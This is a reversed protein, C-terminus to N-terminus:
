QCPRNPSAKRGVIALNVKKVFGYIYDKKSNTMTSVVLSLLFFPNTQQCATIIGSWVFHMGGLTTSYYTTRTIHLQYLIVQM